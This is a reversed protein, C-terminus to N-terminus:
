DRYKRQRGFDDRMERFEQDRSDPNIQELATEAEAFRGLEALAAARAKRCRAALEPEIQGEQIMQDAIALAAKGDRREGDASTALKWAFEARVHPPCDPCQAGRIMLDRVGRVSEGTEGSEQMSILIRYTQYHNDDLEAARRLAHWATVRDGERFAFYGYLYHGSPAAPAIMTAQNLTALGERTNGGSILALGLNCLLSGNWPDRDIAKRISALAKDTHGQAQWVYFALAHTLHHNPALRRLQQLRAEAAEPQKLFFLSNGSYHLAKLHRPDLQLAAEATEVAERYRTLRYLLHTKLGLRDASAQDALQRNVLGLAQETTLVDRHEVFFPQGEYRVVHCNPGSEEIWFPTGWAVTARREDHVSRLNAGAENTVFVTTGASLLEGPLGGRAPLDCRLSMAPLLCQSLVLNLLLAAVPM